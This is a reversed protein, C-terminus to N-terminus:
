KGLWLLELAALGKFTGSAIKEIQNDSLFLWKLKVLGNFNRKSIEQVSCGWTTYLELNPFTGAVNVPLYFIRKNFSLWLGKVSEDHPSIATGPENILTTSQMVCTKVDGVGWNVNRVSECEVEKAENRVILAFIQLLFILM